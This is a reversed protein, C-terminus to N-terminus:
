LGNQGGWQFSNGDASYRHAIYLYTVGPGLHLTRSHLRMGGPLM